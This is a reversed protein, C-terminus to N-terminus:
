SMHLNSRQRHGTAISIILLEQKPVFRLSHVIGQTVRVATGVRIFVPKYCLIQINKQFLLTDRM